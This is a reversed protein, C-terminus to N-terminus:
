LVSIVPKSCDRGSSFASSPSKGRWGLHRWRWSWGVSSALPFAVSTFSPSGFSWTAASPPSQFSASLLFTARYELWTLPGASTSPNRQQGVRWGIYNAYCSNTSLIKKFFCNNKLYCFLHKECNKKKKKMRRIVYWLPSKKCKQLPRMDCTLLGETARHYSCEVLDNSNKAMETM